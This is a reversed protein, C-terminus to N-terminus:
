VDLIAFTNYSMALLSVPLPTPELLPVKPYLGPGMPEEHAGISHLSAM